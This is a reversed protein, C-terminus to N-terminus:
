GDNPHAEATEEDPYTEVETTHKGRHNQANAKNCISSLQKKIVQLELELNAIKDRGIKVQQELHGMQEADLVNLSSAQVMTEDNNDFLCIYVSKGTETVKV